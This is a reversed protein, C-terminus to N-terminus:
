KSLRLACEGFKETSPKFGLDACKKKAQEVDSANSSEPAPGLLQPVSQTSQPPVQRGQDPVGSPMIHRSADVHACVSLSARDKPKGLTVSDIAKAQEETIVEFVQVVRRVGPTRAAVQSYKRAEESSALGMLFVSGSEAVVKTVRTDLGSREVECLVRDELKKNIGLAADETNSGVFIENVVARVNEIRSVAQGVSNKVGADTVFGTILVTRNFSSARILRIRDNGLQDGLRNKVKLQIALDEYRAGDSRRDSTFLEKTSVVATCGALLLLFFPAVAMRFFNKLIAFRCRM